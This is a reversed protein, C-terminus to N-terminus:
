LISTLKTIMTHLEFNYEISKSFIRRRCFFSFGASGATVARMRPLSLDIDKKKPVPERHKGQTGSREMMTRRKTEASTDAGGASSGERV